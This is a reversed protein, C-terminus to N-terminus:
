KEFRSRIVRSSGSLDKILKIDKANNKELIVSIEEMQRPDAELLLYGGPLLYDPAEKIIRKITELGDIGGDLALRPENQVEASLTQIEGTPIYPPNSVIMSFSSLPSQKNFPLAYFLDGQCFLINKGPLLRAANQEALKLAKDSLDAATIELGPMENMLAIAVAGSGTCLDLVNLSEPVQEGEIGPNWNASIKPILEEKLTELAAEVLTETDPRPVLVSPNVFFDLGWFEKWGTIYAACEGGARREILGCFESCEKESLKNTGAAILSARGTKLVHALLLSSDLSPTKIGAYKLDASGQAM